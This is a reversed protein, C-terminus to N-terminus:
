FVRQFIGKVIEAIEARSIKSGRDSKADTARVLEDSLYEVVADIKGKLKPSLKFYGIAFSLGFGLVTIIIQLVSLENMTQPILYTLDIQTFTALAGLGITAITKGTKNRISLTRGLATDKWFNRKYNNFDKKEYEVRNLDHMPLKGDSVYVDKIRRKKIWQKWFREM